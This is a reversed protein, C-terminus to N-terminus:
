MPTLEIPGVESLLAFGTSGSLKGADAESVKVLIMKGFGLTIASHPLGAAELKKSEEATLPRGITKVGQWDGVGWEQMVFEQSSAPHVVRLLPVTKGDSRLGYRGILAEREDKQIVNLNKMESSSTDAINKNCGLLSAAFISGLAAKSCIRM